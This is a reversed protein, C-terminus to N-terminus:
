DLVDPEAIISDISDNSFNSNIAPVSKSNEHHVKKDYPNLSYVLAISSVSAATLAVALAKKLNPRLNRIIEPYFRREYKRIGTLDRYIDISYGILPGMVAGFVVSSGTGIAIKKLDTEGALAYLSVSLPINTAALYLSDHIQQFREKTDNKIGFYKRSIDRGKGLLLGLGAYTLGTIYMRTNLSVENTMKAIMTEFACFIPSSVALMATSDVIHCKAIDKLKSIEM